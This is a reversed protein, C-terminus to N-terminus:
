NMAFRRRPDHRLAHAKRKPVDTFNVEFTVIVLVMLAFLM